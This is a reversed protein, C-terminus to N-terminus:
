KPTKQKELKDLQNLQVSLEAATIKPTDQGQHFGYLSGASFGSFAILMIIALRSFFKELLNRKHMKNLPEFDECCSQNIFAGDEATDSHLSFEEEDDHKIGHLRLNHLAEDWSKDGRERISDLVSQSSHVSASATAWDAHADVSFQGAMKLFDSM